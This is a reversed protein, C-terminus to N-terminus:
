VGGGTTEVEEVAQVGPCYPQSEVDVEVVEVAQVGPCYPQSEVVEDLLEAVPVEDM